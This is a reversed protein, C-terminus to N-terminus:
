RVRGAGVRCSAHGQGRPTVEKGPSSVPLSLSAEKGGVLETLCTRVRFKEGAGWGFDRKKQTLLIVKVKTSERPM